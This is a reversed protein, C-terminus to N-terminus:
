RRMANSQNGSHHNRIAVFDTQSRSPFCECHKSACGTPKDVTRDFVNCDIFWIFNHIKHADGSHAGCVSIAMGCAVRVIRTDRDATPLTQQAGHHVILESKRDSEPQSHFQEQETTVIVGLVCCEGNNTTCETESLCMCLQIVAQQNHRDKRQQKRHTTRIVCMNTANKERHTNSDLCHWGVQRRALKGNGKHGKHDGCLLFLM